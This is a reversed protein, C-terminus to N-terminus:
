ANGNGNGDAGGADDTSASGDATEGAESSDQMERTLEAAERLVNETEATMSGRGPQRSQRSIGAELSDPRGPEHGHSHGRGSDEFEPTDIEEAHPSVLEGLEEPSCEGWDPAHEELWERHAERGLSATIALHNALHVADAEEADCVPCAYGM